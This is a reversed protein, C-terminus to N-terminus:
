PIHSSDNPNRNTRQGNINAVPNSTMVATKIIIRPTSKPVIIAVVSGNKIVGATLKGIQPGADFSTTNVPFIVAVDPLIVANEYALPQALRKEGAVPKTIPAHLIALIL